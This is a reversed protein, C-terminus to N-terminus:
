HPEVVSIGELRDIKVVLGEILVKLRLVNALLLLQGLLLNSLLANRLDLFLSFFFACNLTALLSFFKCQTFLAYLLLLRLAAKFLELLLPTGFLM